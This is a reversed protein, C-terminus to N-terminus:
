WIAECLDTGYMNAHGLAFWAARTLEGMIGSSCDAPGCDAVMVYQIYQGTTNDVIDM